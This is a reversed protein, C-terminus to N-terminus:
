VVPSSSWSGGTSFFDGAVSSLRTRIIQQPIRFVVKKRSATKMTPKTTTILTTRAAYKPELTALLFLDPDSSFLHTCHFTSIFNIQICSPVFNSVHPTKKRQELVRVKIALLVFFCMEINLLEVRDEDEDEGVGRGVPENEEEEDECIGM